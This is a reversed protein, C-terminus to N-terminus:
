IRVDPMNMQRLREKMAAREEETPPPAGDDEMPGGPTKPGAAKKQRKNWEHLMAGWEWLSSDGLERPSM